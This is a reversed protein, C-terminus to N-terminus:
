AAQGGKGLQRPLVLCYQRITSAEQIICDGLADWQAGRSLLGEVLPTSAQAALIRCICEDRSEGDQVKHGPGFVSRSLHSGRGVDRGGRCTCSRGEHGELLCEEAVPLSERPAAAAKVDRVLSREATREVLRDALPIDAIGVRAGAAIYGEEQSLPESGCAARILQQAEWSAECAGILVECAGTLQLVAGARVRHTQLQAQCVM